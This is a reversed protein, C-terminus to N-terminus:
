LSFQFGLGFMVGQNISNNQDIATTGRFYTGDLVFASSDGIPATGTFGALAIVDNTSLSVSNSQTADKYVIPDQNNILTVPMVGLKLSFVALPQEIYNYKAIIPVGVYASTIDKRHSALTPDSDSIQVVAPIDLFQVGTQLSFMGRGFDALVSGAFGKPTDNTSLDQFATAGVISIRTFSLQKVEISSSTPYEIVSTNDTAEKSPNESSADASAWCLNASALNSVIFVMLSLRSLNSLHCFRM